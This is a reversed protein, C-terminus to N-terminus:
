SSGTFNVNVEEPEEYWKVKEGVKARMKWKLSKPHEEVAKRIREMKSLIENYGKSYERMREDNITYTKYFGWDESLIKVVYNLDLTKEDDHDGLDVDYLLAAIDKRDNETLNVIQIKTLFLDSTPITYKMIKLRDKLTIKHCMAFEDLFVDITSNLVPDFFMLRTGGHLANFRKNPTMGLSEMFKSIKSSQSSLGFYDADKYQRPFLESGRKAIIAIAAGGILRLIIGEKNAREIVEMARSLLQEKPIVM